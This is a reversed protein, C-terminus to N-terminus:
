WSNPCITWESDEYDTTKWSTGNNVKTSVKWSSDTQIITSSGDYYFIRIKGLFGGYGEQNSIVMCSLCNDGTVVKDTIDIYNFPSNYRQNWEYNTAAAISSNIYLSFRSDGTGDFLVQQIQECDKINFTKRFYLDIGPDLGKNCGYGTSIQLLTTTRTEM